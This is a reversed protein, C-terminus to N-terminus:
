SQSKPLLLNKTDKMWQKAYPTGHDGLYRFVNTTRHELTRAEIKFAWTPRCELNPWTAWRTAAISLETLRLVVQEVGVVYIGISEHCEDPVALHEQSINLVAIPGCYNFPNCRLQTAKALADETTQSPSPVSIALTFQSCDKEPACSNEWTSHTVIFGLRQCVTSVAHCSSRIDSIFLIQPKM